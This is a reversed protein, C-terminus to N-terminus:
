CCCYDNDDDDDENYNKNTKKNYKIIKGGDKNTKRKVKSMVWVKM